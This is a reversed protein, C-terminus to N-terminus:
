CAASTRSCTARSRRASRRPGRRSRRRSTACRWGGTRDTSPTSRAASSAHGRGARGADAAAPRVGAGDDGGSVRPPAAADPATAAGGGLSDLRREHRASRSREDGAVRRVRRASRDGADDARLRDARRVAPVAAAAGSGEGDDPGAARRGRARRRRDARRRRGDYRHHDRYPLERAITWGAATLDAFFGPPIRSAPSRSSRDRPRRSRRASAADALRAVGQRAARAGSRVAATRRAGGAPREDLVVIADAAEAADIPERLRGAPLTAAQELDARGIVVIDADRHLDFHQFGDDLVHVTCGFHHEALRGALYRSSSALVAVGDLQRALM